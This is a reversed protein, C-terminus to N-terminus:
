EGRRVLGPHGAETHQSIGRVIATGQGDLEDPELELVLHLLEVGALKKVAWGNKVGATVVPWQHTWDADHYRGARSNAVIGLRRDEVQDLNEDPLPPPSLYWLHLGVAREWADKIASKGGHWASSLFMRLWKM